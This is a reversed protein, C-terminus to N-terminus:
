EADLDEVVKYFETSTMGRASAPRPGVAISSGNAFRLRKPKGRGAAGGMRGIAQFFERGQARKTAVGGKRGRQEPTM